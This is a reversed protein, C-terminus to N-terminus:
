IPIKSYLSQARRYFMDVMSNAAQGFVSGVAAGSLISATEFSLHLSVKCAGEGLPRFLWQGSLERFPGDVLAMQILGPRVLQNRTTFSQRLSAKSITLRALQFDEGAELLDGRECWPLFEPYSEVDCVLEFMQRDSYPVLAQREIKM